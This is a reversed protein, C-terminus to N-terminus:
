ARPRPVVVKWGTPVQRIPGAASEAATTLGVRSTCPSSPSRTASAETMGVMIEALVLAAVKIIASFAASRM